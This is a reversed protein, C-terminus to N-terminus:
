RGRRPVHPNHRLMRVEPPYPPFEATRSQDTDTWGAARYFARASDNDRLVWLGIERNAPDSFIDDEAATLLTTGVGRRQFDAAVGLHHITQRDYCAYGAPRDDVEAVVTLRSRDDLVDAWRRRVEETPYPFEESPFIHGLRALGASRELETLLEEEGPRAFRLRAAGGPDDPGNEDAPLRYSEWATRLHDCIRDARTTRGSRVAANPKQVCWAEAVQGPSAIVLGDGGPRIMTIDSLDFRHRRFPNVVEIEDGSLTLRPHLGLRWGFFLVVAALGCIIALVPLQHDGFATAGAALSIVAAAPIALGVIAMLVTVLILTRRSSRWTQPVTESAPAAVEAPAAHRYAIAEPPKTATMEFGIKEPAPRDVTLPV